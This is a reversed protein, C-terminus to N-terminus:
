TERFGLCAFGMPVVGTPATAPDTLAAAGDALIVFPINSGLGGLSGGVGVVPTQIAQAADMGKLNLVVTSDSSFCLLHVGASVLQNIAIAKVGAPRANVTGFDATLVDPTLLNDASKKATYLGLRIVSPDSGQTTVECVIEDFTRAYLLRIAVYHLRHQQIVQNASASSGWGPLSINTSVLNEVLGGSMLHHQNESVGGPHSGGVGLRGM